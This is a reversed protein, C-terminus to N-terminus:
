WKVYKKIYTVAFTIIIGVVVLGGFTFLPTKLVTVLTAKGVYAIFYAFLIYSIVLTSLYMVGETLKRRKLRSMRSM